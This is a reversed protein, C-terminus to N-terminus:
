ENSVKAPGASKQYRLVTCYTTEAPTMYADSFLITKKADVVVANSGKLDAGCAFGVGDSSSPEVDSSESSSGNDWVGNGRGDGAADFDSDTVSFELPFAARRRGGLRTIFSTSDSSSSSAGTRWLDQEPDVPWSDDNCFAWAFTCFNSCCVVWDQEGRLCTPPLRLRPRYQM